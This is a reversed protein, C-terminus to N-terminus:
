LSPWIATFFVSVAAAFLFGALCGLGLPKGAGGTSTKRTLLTAVIGFGLPGPTAMAFNMGLQESSIGGVVTGIALLVGLALFGRAVFGVWAPPSSAPPGPPGGYGQPPGGYGQPPGGYGQPPGGYGQPPGGYGGPPAGHGPPPGGYGGPPANM